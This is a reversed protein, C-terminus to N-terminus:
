WGGVTGAELDESMAWGFAVLLDGRGRDLKAFCDLVEPGLDAPAEAEVDLMLPCSGDGTLVLIRDDIRGDAGFRKALRRGWAREEGTLKHGARPCVESLGRLAIFGAPTSMRVGVLVDEDPFALHCRRYLDSLIGGLFQEQEGSRVVYALGLLLAPTGGIRELTALAFAVMQGDQRVRSVLVWEDRQKSLIGVDYGCQDAAVDAMEALEADSLASADKTEVEIPM